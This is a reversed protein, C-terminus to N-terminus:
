SFTDTIGYKTKILSLTFVAYIAGDSLFINPMFLIVLPSNECFQKEIVQYTLYYKQNQNQNIESGYIVYCLKCFLKVM